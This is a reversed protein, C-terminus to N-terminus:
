QDCAFLLLEESNATLRVRKELQMGITELVRISGRNTPLTIAVFRKLQLQQFAYEKVAQAAEVAYGNGWFQPRFAFGIDADDLTDRKLIGCMGLPTHSDKLEVLYLGFGYRAYSTMPGTLIYGRADAISRVGRDGINQHFAPENLLELIFPADDPTLHRLRLRETEVIEM